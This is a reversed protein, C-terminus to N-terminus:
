PEAAPPTVALALWRAPARWRRPHEGDRQLGLLTGRTCAARAVYLTVSSNSCAGRRRTSDPQAPRFRFRLKPRAKFTGDQGYRSLVTRTTSCGGGGEARQAQRTEPSSATGSQGGVPPQPRRQEDRGRARVCTRAQPLWTSGLSHALAARLRATSRAWGSPRGRRPRPPPRGRLTCCPFGAPKRSGRM